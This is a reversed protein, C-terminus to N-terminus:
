QPTVAQSYINIGPVITVTAADACSTGGGVWVTEYKPANAKKFQLKYEGEPVDAINYKGSSLSQGQRFMASCDDALYLTAKVGSVPVGGDASTVIGTVKAPLADVGVINTSVSSGAGLSILPAADFSTGGGNFTTVYGSKSFRLRYDGAPVTINYRGNSITYKHGVAVGTVADLAVVKGGQVPVNAGDRVFGTLLGTTVPPGEVVVSVPGASSGSFGDAGGYVASVEYTGVTPWSYPVEALGFEDVSVGGVFDGDVFFEVTGGSPVPSVSASLSVVEDVVATAPVDLVTVTEVEAVAVIRGISGKGNSFWMAGDPGAAITGAGRISPDTFTSIVGDPTIRRISNSERTFWMNGDPGAAIDRACCSGVDTFKSVVGDPTIRGMWDDTFWLNGDPGAAIAEPFDISPDTFTSIVGDVTIRGISRSCCDVFWMNGDPGAAIGLPSTLGTGTFNSVVGDPTIRGISGSENTFWMNGDPGAAIAHPWSISPDTFNSVVGAPTIRGISDGMYNTFWLNGDPGAAIAWPYDMSPDTFTSVVGDPTIQGISYSVDEDYDYDYDNNIFWMNGDPGAAIDNVYYISPDTFVSVTGVPDGAAAAPKAPVMGVTAAVLLAVLLGGRRSLTGVGRSSGAM